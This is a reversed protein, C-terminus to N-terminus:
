AAGGFEVLATPQCNGCKVPRKCFESAARCESCVAWRDLHATGALDLCAVPTKPKAAEAARKAIEYQLAWEHVNAAAQLYAGSPNKTIEQGPVYAKWIADRLHKPLVYWHPPCGWMKPPVERACGPWHCHHKM